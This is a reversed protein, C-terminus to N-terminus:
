LKGRQANYLSQFAEIVDTSKKTTVSHTDIKKWAGQFTARWSAAVSGSPADNRIGQKYVFMLDEGNLPELAAAIQAKVQEPDIDMGALYTWVLPIGWKLIASAIMDGMPKGSSFHRNLFMLYGEAAGSSTVVPTEEKGKYIAPALPRFTSWTKIVYMLATNSNLPKPPMLNKEIYWKFFANLTSIDLKGASKMDDLLTCAAGIDNPSIGGYKFFEPRVKRIANHFAVVVREPSEIGPEITRHSGERKAKKGSRSRSMPPSLEPTEQPVTIENKTAEKTEEELKKKKSAEVAPMEMLNVGAKVVALDSAETPTEVKVAEKLLQSNADQIPEEQFEPKNELFDNTLHHNKSPEKHNPGVPNVPPILRTSPHPLRRQRTPDVPNVPLGPQRTATKPLRGTFTTSPDKEAAGTFTTSPDKEKKPIHLWYHNVRGIKRDVTLYGREELIDIQDYVGQRTLECKEALTPISPWCYGSDNANDALAQMVIKLTSSGFKTKWVQDIYYVSM